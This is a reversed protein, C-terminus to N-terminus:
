NAQEADKPLQNRKRFVGFVVALVILIVAGILAYQLVSSPEPSRVIARIENEEGYEPRWTITNGNVQGNTEIIEGPYTISISIDSSSLLNAAFDAGFFNLDDESFEQGGLDFNGSTILNDGERAINLFDDESGNESFVELPVSEFFIQNGTYGDRKYTVQRIGESELFIGDGVSEGDTEALGALADSLAIIINGSIRDNASVKLDINM